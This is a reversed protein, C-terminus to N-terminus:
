SGGTDGAPARTQWRRQTEEYGARVAATASSATRIAVALENTAPPGRAANPPSETAEAIAAPPTTTRPRDNLYWRGRPRNQMVPAHALQMTRTSPTGSRWAQWVGTRAPM